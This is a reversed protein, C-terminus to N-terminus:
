KGFQIVGDNAIDESKLTKLIERDEPPLRLVFKGVKPRMSDILSAIMAQEAIEHLIAKASRKKM